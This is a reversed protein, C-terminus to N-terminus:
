ASLDGLKVRLTGSSDFAKIVNNYIELRAGSTGSRITVTGDSAVIFKSNINLAGATVSGLNATIASLQTVSIKDATITSAAINTGTITNASVKDGTITASVILSGTIYTAQSVWSTTYRYVVANNASNYSVTCIDGAVAYRGIASFVEAPSPTSSDNASRTVLFTASGNSGDLGNTGNAGNYAIARIPYAVNTWDLL